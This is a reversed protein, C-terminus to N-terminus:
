LRSPGSRRGGRQRFKASGALHKHVKSATVVPRLHGRIRLRDFVCTSGVYSEDEERTERLDGSRAARDGCIETLLAGRGTLRPVTELTGKAEHSRLVGPRSQVGNGRKLDDLSSGM